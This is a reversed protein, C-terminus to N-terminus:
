SIEIGNLLIQKYSDINDSFQIGVNLGNLATITLQEDRTRDGEGAHNMRNRMIKVALYYAMIKSVTDSNYNNGLEISGDKIRQLGFLKKRYTKYTKDSGKKSPTAITLYSAEDNYLFRHLWYCNTSILANWFERFTMPVTGEITIYGDGDHGPNSPEYKLRHYICYSTHDKKHIGDEKYCANIFAILSDYAEWLSNSAFQKQRGIARVLMGRNNPHVNSYLGISKLSERFLAVELGEAARDFLETYFVTDYQSHGPSASVSALNVFDPVLDHEFYYKPMKDTYITAAQQIMNNEACWQIMRPYNLGENLYMKERITPALTKLMVSNINECDSGELQNIAAVVDQIKEDLHGIDCISLTDSFSILSRVVNEAPSDDGVSRYAKQLERANGTNTFDNVGNIMQYIDYIYHIDYLKKEFYNSYVIEGCVLGKFELFRIISTMLFSIDRLGGTYDIFVEEGSTVEKFCDALKEYIVVPLKKGYEVKANSTEDYDYPILIFEQNQPMGYKIALNNVFRKFKELQPDDEPTTMVKFSTICLVRKIDGKKAKAQEFLYEIPVDNTQTGKYSCDRDVFSYEEEQAGRPNRESKLSKYDSLFLLINIDSM